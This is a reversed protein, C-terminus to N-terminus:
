AEDKGLARVLKRRARRAARKERAGDMRAALAGIGNIIRAPWRREIMWVRLDDMRKRM